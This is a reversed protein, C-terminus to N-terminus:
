ILLLPRGGRLPCVAHGPRMKTKILKRNLDNRAQRIVVFRRIGFAGAARHRRANSLLFHHLDCDFDPPPLPLDLELQDESLGLGSPAPERL